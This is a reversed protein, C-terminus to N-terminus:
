KNNQGKLLVIGSFVLISKPISFTKELVFVLHVLFFPLKRKFAISLAAFNCASNVGILALALLFVKWVLACIEGPSFTSTEPSPFRM